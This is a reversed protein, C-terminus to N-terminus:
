GVRRLSLNQHHNYFLLVSCGHKNFHNLGPPLSMKRFSDWAFAWDTIHSQSTFNKRFDVKWAINTKSSMAANWNWTKQAISDNVTAPRLKSRFSAMLTLAVFILKKESKFLLTWSTNVKFHVILRRAASTRGLRTPQVSNALDWLLQILSLQVILSRQDMGSFYGLQTCFPYFHLLECTSSQLIVEPLKHDRSNVNLRTGMEYHM